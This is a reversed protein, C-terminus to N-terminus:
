VLGTGGTLKRPLRYSPNHRGTVRDSEWDYATVKRNVFFMVYANCSPCYLKCAIELTHPGFDAIEPYVIEPTPDEFSDGCRQCIGPEPTEDPKEETRIDKKRKCCQSGCLLFFERSSDEWDYRKPFIVDVYRHGKWNTWIKTVPVKIGREEKPLTFTDQTWVSPRKDEPFIFSEGPGLEIEPFM